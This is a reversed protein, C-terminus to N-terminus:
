TNILENFADWPLTPESVHCWICMSMCYQGRKGICSNGMWGFWRCADTSVQLSINRHKAKAASGTKGRTGCENRKSIEMGIRLPRVWSSTVRIRAQDKVRMREHEDGMIRESRSQQHVCKSGLTIHALRWEAPANVRSDHTRWWSCYDAIFRFKESEISKVTIVIQFGKMNGGYQVQFNCTISTELDHHKMRPEAYNVGKTSLQQSTYTGVWFILNDQFPQQM